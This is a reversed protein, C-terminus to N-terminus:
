RQKLLSLTAMKRVEGASNPIYYFRTLRWTSLVKCTGRVEKKSDAESLISQDGASFEEDKKRRGTTDFWLVLAVSPNDGM